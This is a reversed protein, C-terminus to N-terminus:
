QDLCALCALALCRSGEAIAVLLAWDSAFELTAIQVFEVMSVTANKVDLM